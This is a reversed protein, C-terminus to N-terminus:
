ITSLTESESSVETREESAQRKRAGKLLFCALAPLLLIAGVMNWLFMFTLLVGMDAQFKLASFSWTSVGIAMSGALVVRSSGTAPRPPTALLADDTIILRVAILGVLPGGVPDIPNKFRM